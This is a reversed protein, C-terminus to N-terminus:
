FNIEISIVEEVLDFGSDDKVKSQIHRILEVVDKISAKREINVIWNAHLESISAGGIAFGKLGSREILMGASHEPNPNKFVSGFSPLTLPQTNKRYELFSKRKESIQLPDGRQLEIQGAFILADAPLGSSRYRFNFQDKHVTILESNANIYSVETLIGCMEEKHAGANMRIAGGFSAPIGGAFELGSFGLACLERSLSMLPMAAGIEFAEFKETSNSNGTNVKKYNRFGKGLRIAISGLGQDSILLNSGAGIVHYPLSNEKIFKFLLHLEELSNPEVLCSISGGAAITTCKSAPENKKFKIKSKILFDEITQKITLM